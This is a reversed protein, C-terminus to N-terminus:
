ESDGHNTLGDKTAEGFELLQESVELGLAWEIKEGLVPLKHAVDLLFVSEEIFAGLKQGMDGGVAKGVLGGFNVPLELDEERKDSVRDEATIGDMFEILGTTFMSGGSLVGLVALPTALGGTGVEELGSALSIAAGGIMRSIGTMVLLWDTRGDLDFRDVPNNHCFLYLHLFIQDLSPERGVWRGQTPNYYRWGYYVLGTEDDNFKTSCRFPNAKAMPGTVRLLEGFPSYEYRAVSALGASSFLASINGNGDNCAFDANTIQGTSTELVAALGGIGGAKDRTGSLDLGWIFGQQISGQSNVIAILNWGDYVFRNTSQPVFVSGNWAKVLKSVRRRQFDYAFELRLRNSNAVSAINTMTMAALRNEADWEYTWIGDFTLNGDGDYAFNQTYAPFTCGGNSVTGGCTISLTQWLPANSNNITLERHFYEMKRDALGGIGNLTNTIAISNTAFAVGLVDRYGLNTISSYENLSNAGYGIPRLNAGNTDGGGGSTTRNGINDYAYTFQQGSVPTWDSWERRAGTLENRDGYDYLWSSGDELGTQIRRNLADYRYGFSTVVSNNATNVVSRLRPGIEWTRTTRLIEIANSKSSTGQILDSNALYGYAASYIGCSVTVLRGYSDYTFQNTLPTTTGAVKLFDRGYVSNFHNTVAIGSMLGAICATNIVRGAYDYTIVNTGSSDLAVDPKARRNLDPASANTFLVCTGDSYAMGVTDGNDTYLNTCVVGRAWTRTMPYHNDYYSFKVAQGAADTKNTLLGTPEDFYWTTVDATGTSAPWSSGTWGTGGRYTTLNTQDGFINYQNQQPYPVNGWIQIRQGIGNYNYFTNRGTPGTVSKLLGANTGGAAYYAMTTTQGHADTTAVKQGTFADYHTANQNGLPDTSLIKRGLADYGYTTPQSVTESSESQTLSNISIKTGTLTSQAVTTTTTLKKNPLDVTTKVTTQNTDVDFTDTESVDTSSFGTLKQMTRQVLTPTSNSTFPFTWEEATHFWHSQADLQYYNTFTSIRETSAANFDCSGGNIDGPANRAETIKQGFGDYQYFVIFDDQSAYNGTATFGPDYSAAPGDANLTYYFSKWLINTNNFAPMWEGADEGRGDTLTASWRLSNTSGLTIKTVNKPQVADNESLGTFFYDYFQNTVGTGTISAVRRDLYNAVIKTTGSSFTTTTQQGGNQYTYSTRLGEPSIQNTVRGALDYQSVSSLSLSSASTTNTLVRSAADYSSTLVIATQGTAPQKTKTRTRKLTDYTYTYNIGTEDTDSLKLDAPWAQAGQWDGQYIVRSQGTSPDYRTVTTAHGVADRQYVVQNVKAFNTVNNQYVYLEKAVLNGGSIIRIEKTARYPEVYVPEIAAGSPGYTIQDYVATVPVSVGHFITQRVDNSFSGSQTPTFTRISSNWAGYEYDYSDIKGANDKKSYLQGYLNGYAPGFSTSYQYEGYHYQSGLQHLEEILGSTACPDTTLLSMENYTCSYFRNLSPAHGNPESSLEGYDSADHWQQVQYSGQEYSSPYIYDSVWSSNAPDTILSNKWPHIIQILAGYPSNPYLGPDTYESYNRKEWYGDPYTISVTRGYTPPDNTDTGFTFQTVLKAGAPDNTVTVLEWGWPFSQYVETTQDSIAGAGNKVVQSETSFKTGSVTNTVITRTEVRSDNGSGETLTWLGSASTFQLLSTNTTGNRAEQIQWQNTAGSPLGIYYTVFASANNILTYFGLTDVSSVQSLSYFNLGFVTSQLKAIKGSYADELLFRNLRILNAGTPSLLLLRRTRGSLTVGAFRTSNYILPGQIIPNLQQTLTTQLISLTSNTILTQQALSTFNTWLFQSVQDTHNTLTQVLPQTSIFDNTAFLASGYQPDATALVQPTKIQCIWNTNDLDMKVIIENTDDSRPLYSLISPSNVNTTFRTEDICIRGASSGSWLRGVSVAWDFAVSSPDGLKSSSIKLWESDGPAIKADMAPEERTWADDPQDDGHTMHKAPRTVPRAGLDPRIQVLFTVNMPNWSDFGFEPLNGPCIKQWAGSTTNSYYASYLRAPQQAVTQSSFLDNLTPPMLNVQSDYVNAGTMTLVYTQNVRLWVNNTPSDLFPNNPDSALYADNTSVTLGALTLTVAGSGTSEAAKFTLWAKVPVYVPDQASDKWANGGGGPHLVGGRIPSQEPKHNVDPMNRWQDSLTAATGELALAFIAVGCLIAARPWFRAARGPLMQAIPIM